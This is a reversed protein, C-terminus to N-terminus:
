KGRLDLRNVYFYDEHFDCTLPRLFTPEPFAVMPDFSQCIEVVRVPHDELWAKVVHQYLTRLQWWADVTHSRKIELIVVTGDVREYLGDIQCIRDGSDDKFSFWTGLSFWQGLPFKSNLEQLYLRAKTEFRLGAAQAETM